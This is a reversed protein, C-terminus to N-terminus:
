TQDFSLTDCQCKVEFRFQRGIRHGNWPITLQECTVRMGMNRQELGQMVARGDSAWIGPKAGSDGFLFSSFEVGVNQPSNFGRRGLSNDAECVKFAVMTLLVKEALVALRCRPTDAKSDCASPGFRGLGHAQPRFISLHCFEATDVQKFELTKWTGVDASPLDRGWPCLKSRACAM